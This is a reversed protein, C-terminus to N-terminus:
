VTPARGTEPDRKTLCYQRGTPDAMVTWFSFTDAVRAGRAVRLDAVQDRNACAFDVHATV